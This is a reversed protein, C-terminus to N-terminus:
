WFRFCAPHCLSVVPLDAPQYAPRNKEPKMTALEISFHGTEGHWVATRQRYCFVSVYGSLGVALHKNLLYFQCAASSQHIRWQRHKWAKLANDSLAGFHTCSKHNLCLRTAVVLYTLKIITSSTPNKQCYSQPFCLLFRTVLEL